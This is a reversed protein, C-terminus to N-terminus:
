YHTLDEREADFDHDIDTHDTVAECHGCWEPKDTALEDESIPIVQISSPERIAFDPKVDEIHFSVKGTSGIVLRHGDKDLITVEGKGYVFGHAPKDEKVIKNYAEDAIAVYALAENNYKQCEPPLPRIMKSAAILGEDTMDQLIGECFQCVLITKGLLYFRSLTIENNKLSAAGVAFHCVNCRPQKTLQLDRLQDTNGAHTYQTDAM